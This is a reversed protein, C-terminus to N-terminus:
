AFSGEVSAAKASFSTKLIVRKNYSTWLSSQDRQSSKVNVSSTFLGSFVFVCFDVSVFFSANMEYIIIM